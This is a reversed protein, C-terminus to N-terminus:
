ILMTPGRCGLVGAQLAPPQHRCQLLHLPLQRSAPQAGSRGALRGCRWSLSQLPGEQPGAWATEWCDPRGQRQLCLSRVHFQQVSM